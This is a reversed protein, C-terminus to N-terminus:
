YDLKINSNKLKRMTPQDRPVSAVILVWSQSVLHVAQCEDDASISDACHVGDHHLLEFVYTFLCALSTQFHKMRFNVVVKVHTKIKPSWGM